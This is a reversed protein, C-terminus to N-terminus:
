DILLFFFFIRDVSIGLERVVPASMSCNEFKVIMLQNPPNAKQFCAKIRSMNDTNVGVKGCLWFVRACTPGRTANFEYYNLLQQAKETNGLDLARLQEQVELIDPFPTHIV